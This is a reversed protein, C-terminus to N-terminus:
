RRGKRGYREIRYAIGPGGDGEYALQTMALTFPSSAPTVSSACRSAKRVKKTLAEAGSSTRAVVLRTDGRDM